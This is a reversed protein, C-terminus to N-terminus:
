PGEKGFIRRFFWGSNPASATTSRRRRTISAYRNSAESDAIEDTRRRKKGPTDPAYESVSAEDVDLRSRIALHTMQFM